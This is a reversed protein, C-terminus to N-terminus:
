NRSDISSGNNLLNRSRSLFSQLFYMMLWIHYHPAVNDPVMDNTRDEQLVGHVTIIQVHTALLRWIPYHQCLHWLDYLHGALFGSRMGYSKKKNLQVLSLSQWVFGWVSASNSFHILAINPLTGWSKRWLVISSMVFQKYCKTSM